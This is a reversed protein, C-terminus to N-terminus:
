LESLAPVAEIDAEGAQSTHVNIVTSFQIATSASLILLRVVVAQLQEFQTYLM